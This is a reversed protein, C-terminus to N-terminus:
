FYASRKSVQDDSLKFIERALGLTVAWGRLQDPDENVSVLFETLDLWNSLRVEEGKDDSFRLEIEPASKLSRIKTSFFTLFLLPLLGNCHMITGAGGFNEWKIVNIMGSDKLGICFSDSDFCGSKSIFNLEVEPYLHMFPKENSLETEDKLKEHFELLFDTLQSVLSAPDLPATKTSLKWHLLEPM